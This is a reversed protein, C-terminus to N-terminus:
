VSSVSATLTCAQLVDITARLKRTTIGDQPMSVSWAANLPASGDKARFSGQASADFRWSAGNDDSRELTVKLVDGAAPWVVGTLNVVYGKINPDLVPSVFPGISSVPLATQPITILLAM